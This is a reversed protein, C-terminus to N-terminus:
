LLLIVFLGVAVGREIWMRRKLKKLQAKNSEIQTDLNIIILNKTSIIGDKETIISEQLTRIGELEKIHGGKNAILAELFVENDQCEDLEIFLRNAVKIDDIPISTTQSYALTHLILWIL